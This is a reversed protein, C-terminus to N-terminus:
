SRTACSKPPAGTAWFLLERPNAVDRRTRRLLLLLPRSEQLRDPIFPCISRLCSLPSLRLSSRIRTAYSSWLLPFSVIHWGRPELANGVVAQPFCASELTWPINESTSNPQPFFHVCTSPCNTLAAWLESQPSELTPAPGLPARSSSQRLFIFRRNRPRTDNLAHLM